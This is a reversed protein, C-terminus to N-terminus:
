TEYATKSVTTTTAMNNKERDDGMLGVGNSFTRYGKKNKLSAVSDAEYQRLLDSKGPDSLKPHKKTVIM